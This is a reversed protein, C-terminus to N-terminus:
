GRCVIELEVTVTHGWNHTDAPSTSADARMCAVRAGLCVESFQEGLVGGASAPHQAHTRCLLLTRWPVHPGWCSSM